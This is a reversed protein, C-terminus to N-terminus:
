ASPLFAVIRDAHTEVQNIQAKEQGDDIGPADGMARGICPHRQRSGALTQSVHLGCAFDQQELAAPPADTRGFGALREGVMRARDQMLHRLHASLYGAVGLSHACADADEGIRRRNRFKQGFPERGPHCGMWLDVDFQFFPLARLDRAANGRAKGFDTDQGAGGLDGVEYRVGEGDVPQYGDERQVMIKRFLGLKAEGIQEIM